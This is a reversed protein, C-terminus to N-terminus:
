GDRLAKLIFAPKLGQAISASLLIRMKEALQEAMGFVGSFV